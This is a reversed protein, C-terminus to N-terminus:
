FPRTFRTTSRSLESVLKALNNRCKRVKPLCIRRNRRKVFVFERSRWRPTCYGMFFSTILNNSRLEPPANNLYKITRTHLLVQSPDALLLFSPLFRPSSLWCALLKKIKLRPNRLSWRLDEFVELKNGIILAERARSKNEGLDLLPRFDGCLKHNQYKLTSYQLALNCM